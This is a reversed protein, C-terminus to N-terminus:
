GNFCSTVKPRASSTEKPGSSSTPKVTSASSTVKPGLSSTEKPGSSSTPKVTSASSTVKPGSSSTPTVTSASSTVKPSVTTCKPAPSSSPYSSSSTSPPKPFKRCGKHESPTIYKTMSNVYKKKWHHRLPDYRLANPFRMYGPILDRYGKMSFMIKRVYLGDSRREWPLPQNLGSFDFKTYLIEHLGNHGTDREFKIKVGDKPNNDNTFFTIEDNINSVTSNRFYQILSWDSKWLERPYPSDLLPIGKDHFLMEYVFNTECKDEDYLVKISNLNSISNNPTIHEGDFRKFESNWFEPTIYDTPNSTRPVEILKKTNNKYRPTSSRLRYNPADKPVNVCQEIHFPICQTCTNQLQSHEGGSRQSRAGVAVKGPGLDARGHVSLHLEHYYGGEIKTIKPFETLNSKFDPSFFALLKQSGGYTPIKGDPTSGDREGDANSVFFLHEKGSYNALIGNKNPFDKFARFYLFYKLHETPDDAMTRVDYFYFLQYTFTTVCKTANFDATADLIYGNHKESRVESAMPVGTGWNTPMELLPLTDPIIDHQESGACFVLINALFVAICISVVKKNM